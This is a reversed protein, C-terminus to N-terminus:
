QHIAFPPQDSPHIQGQRDEVVKWTGMTQQLGDKSLQDALANSDRFIHCISLSNFSSKLEQLEELLLKLIQNKCSSKGNVWNIVNLSDGFIQITYINRQLLWCLLLRLASLEAFNNSGTGLGVFAKLSHNANIHIVM